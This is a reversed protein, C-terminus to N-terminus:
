RGGKKCGEGRDVNWSLGNQVSIRSVQLLDWLVTLCASIGSGGGESEGGVQGIQQQGQNAHSVLARRSTCGGLCALSVRGESGRGKVKPHDRVRCRPLTNGIKENQVSQHRRHKKKKQAWDIGSSLQEAKKKQIRGFYQRCLSIFHRGQINEYSGGVAGSRKGSPGGLRTREAGAGWASGPWYKLRIRRRTVNSLRDTSNKPSSQVTWSDGGAGGELSLVKQKQRGECKPKKVVLSGRFGNNGVSSM